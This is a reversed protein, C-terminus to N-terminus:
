GRDNSTAATGLRHLAEELAADETPSLFRLLEHILVLGDPLKVVGAIYEARPADEPLPEIGGAPPSVLSHVGDVWLVLTRGGPETVIFHDSPSVPKKSLGLRSRLDLVPVLAGRIDVIGEVVEPAGPLPIVAVARVIERVDPVRLGFQRGAVEFTVIQEPAVPDGAILM